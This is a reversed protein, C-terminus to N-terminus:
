VRLLFFIFLFSDNFLFTLKWCPWATCVVMLPAGEKRPCSDGSLYVMTAGLVDTSGWSSPGQTLSPVCKPLREAEEM